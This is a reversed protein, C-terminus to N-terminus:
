TWLRLAMIEKLQNTVYSFSIIALAAIPLLACFVFLIFIRRAVKSRLFTTDIKMVYGSSTIKQWVWTDGMM